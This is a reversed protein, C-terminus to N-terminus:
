ISITGTFIWVSVASCLLGLLIGMLVDTFYHVKLYCRSFAIMLAIILVYIGGRADLMNFAGAVAFSSATHGSPFSYTVPCKILLNSDNMVIFPRARRVLHKIIGEGLVLALILATAVIYGYVRYSKNILLFISLAIWVIGGNGLKTVKPMIRDLIQYRLHGEIFTWVRIDMIQLRSIM